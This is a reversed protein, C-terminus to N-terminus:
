QITKKHCLFLYVRQELTFVHVFKIKLNTNEIQKLGRNHLKNMVFSSPVVFQRPFKKCINSNVQYCHIEFSRLFNDLFIRLFYTLKIQQWSKWSKWNNRGFSMLQIMTEFWSKRRKECKSNRSLRIRYIKTYFSKARYLKFSM